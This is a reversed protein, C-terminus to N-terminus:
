AVVEQIYPLVEAFVRESIKESYPIKTYKGKFEVLFHQGYVSADYRMWITLEKVAEIGFRLAVATAFIPMIWDPRTM